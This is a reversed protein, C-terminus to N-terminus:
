SKEIAEGEDQFLFHTLLGIWEDIAEQMCLSVLCMLCVLLHQGSHWSIPNHEKVIPVDQPMCPPSFRYLFMFLQLPFFNITAPQVAGLLQCTSVANDLTGEEVRELSLQTRCTLVM